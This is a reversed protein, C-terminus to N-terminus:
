QDDQCSRLLNYQKHLWADTVKYHHEDIKVIEMDSPIIVAKDTMCSVLFFPLVLVIGM